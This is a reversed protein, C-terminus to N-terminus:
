TVRIKKIAEPITIVAGTLPAVGIGPFFKNGRVPSHGTHLGTMLSARSPACVASGAYHQTFLMGEKALRDINPTSFSSQGLFSLDGWGMDDALIYIINPPNENKAEGQEMSKKCGFLSILFAGM